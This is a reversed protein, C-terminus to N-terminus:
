YIVVNSAKTIQFDGGTVKINTLSVPGKVVEIKFTYRSTSSSLTFNSSIDYYQDITNNLQITKRDVKVSGNGTLAKMGLYIKGYEPNWNVLDFTVTMGQDLYLEEKPGIKQYEAATTLRGNTDTLTVFNGFEEKWSGDEQITYDSLLKERLSVVQNQSEGDNSYNKEAETDLNEPNLPDYIRIGDLYFQSGFGGSGSKIPKAIRVEVTYTGYELNKIQYVPINYLSKGSISSDGTGVRTDRYLHYDVTEGGVKTKVTVYIYGTNPTLRALIATGTGTFDYSFGAWGNSTDVGAVSDASDGTNDAYCTDAGYPSKKGINGEQFITSAVYEVNWGDSAGRNYSILEAFDQEYYMSTAPIIQVTAQQEKITGDIDTAKLTYQFSVVENLPETPTYVIQDGDVQVTGHAVTGPVTIEEQPNTGGTITDNQRVDIKVPLGYDVVVVDDQTNVTLGGVYELTNTCGFSIQESQEIAANTIQIQDSTWSSSSTTVAGASEPSVSSSWTPTIYGSKAEETVYYKKGNQYTIGYFVAREGDKLDFTGDNATQKVASFSGNKAYLAYYQRPMPTGNEYLTFTYNTAAVAKKQEETLPQGESNSESVNKSVTLTDRQPLNFKIKCNSGGEGRELYFLTLTHTGKAAFTEKTTDLKDYINGMPVTNPYEYETGSTSDKDFIGSTPHNDNQKTRRYEVTGTAFNIMGLTSDHIGGLDLVLTGDVFVWVDDDGAFEFTIDNGNLKGDATMTFDVTARMGFHYDANYSYENRKDNQITDEQNFPYFGTDGDASAVTQRQPEDKWSLQAGNQPEGAFRASDQSSDFVYYGNEDQVFPMTVNTYVEKGEAPATTFIGSDPVTFQPNGESDLEDAMLGNYVWGGHGGIVNGTWKNYNEYSKPSIYGGEQLGGDTKYEYITGGSYIGDKDATSGTISYTGDSSELTYNYSKELIPLLSNWPPNASTGTKCIYEESAYMDADNAAPPVAEEPVSSEEPAPSESVAPSEEPQVPSESPAVSVEPVPTGSVAPSEEPQVPSESPAVSVEPAPVQDADISVIPIDAVKVGIESTTELLGDAELTSTSVQQGYIDYYFEKWYWFGEEKQEIRTIRYTTNDKEIYYAGSHYDFNDLSPQPELPLYDEGTFDLSVKQYGYENKVYYEGGDALENYTVDVPYYGPKATYADYEYGDTGPNGDNFYLAKWKQLEPGQAEVDAQHQLANFKEADYNFMTVPFYKAVRDGNRAALALAEETSLNAYASPNSTQIYTNARYDSDETLAPDGEILVMDSGNVALAGPTLLGIGLCAALALSMIREWRKTLQQKM